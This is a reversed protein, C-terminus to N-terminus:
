GKTGYMEQRLLDYILTRCGGDRSRRAARSAATPVSASRWRDPKKLAEAISTPAAHPRGTQAACHLRQGYHWKRASGKIVYRRMEMYFVQFEAPSSKSQAIMLASM